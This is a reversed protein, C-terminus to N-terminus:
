TCQINRALASHNKNLSLMGVCTPSKVEGSFQEALSWNLKKILTCKLCNERNYIGYTRSLLVTYRLIWHQFKLLIGVAIKHLNDFTWGSIGRYRIIYYVDSMLKHVDFYCEKWIHYDFILLSCTGSQALKYSPSFICM